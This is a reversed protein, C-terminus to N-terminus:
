DGMVGLGAVFRVFGRYWWVAVSLINCSPASYGGYFVNKDLVTVGDFGNLGDL